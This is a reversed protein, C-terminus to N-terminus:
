EEEEERLKLITEKSKIEGKYDKVREKIVISNQSIRQIKGKHLGITMGERLTYSKGDPLIVEAYHGKENWVIGLIRISNVDYSELPTEGKSPAQQAAILLSVFPDRRGNKEYLFVEEEVKPGKAEDEPSVVKGSTKAPGSKSVSAKEKCAGSFILFAFIFFLLITRNM